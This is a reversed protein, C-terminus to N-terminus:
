SQFHFQPVQVVPQLAAEVSLTDAYGNLFKVINQGRLPKIAELIEPSFAGKHDALLHDKLKCPRTWMFPCSSFPCPHPPKHKDKMHRKLEQTRGFDKTCSACAPRPKGTCDTTSNIRDETASQTTLDGEIEQSQTQPYPALTNENTIYYFDAISAEDPPFNPQQSM